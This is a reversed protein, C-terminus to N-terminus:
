RARQCRCREYIAPLVYAARAIAEPHPQNSTPLILLTSPVTIRTSESSLDPGFQDVSSSNWDGGNYVAERRRDNTPTHGRYTPPEHLDIDYPLTDYTAFSDASPSAARYNDRLTTNSGSRPTRAGHFTPHQPRWTSSAGEGEGLIM